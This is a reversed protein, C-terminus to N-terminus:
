LLAAELESLIEDTASIGGLGLTWAESTLYVVHGSQYCYMQKIADSAEIVDAPDGITQADQQGQDAAGGDRAQGQAAGHGRATVFLWDPDQEVVYDFSLQEQDTGDRGEGQQQAASAPALDQLGLEDTLIAMGSGATQIRLVDSGVSGVLCTQGEVATKLAAIRDDYPVLMGPVEDERGWLAAIVNASAEVADVTRKTSDTSIVVTPCIAALDTYSGAARAGIFLVDPAAQALADLGVDRISGLDVMQDTVLGQLYGPITGKVVGVVADILGLADLDDLTVWEAVAVRQPAYPVVADGLTGNSVTFSAPHGEVQDDSPTIRSEPLQLDWTGGQTGRSGGAMGADTRAQDQAPAQGGDKPVHDGQDALAVVPSAACALAAFGALGYVFGRRSLSADFSVRACASDSLANSM